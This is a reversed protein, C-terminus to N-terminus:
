FSASLGSSMVTAEAKRFAWAGPAEAALGARARPEEREPAERGRESFSQQNRGSCGAWCHLQGGAGERGWEAWGVM